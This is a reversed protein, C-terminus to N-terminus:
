KPVREDTLDQCVTSLAARNRGSTDVNHFGFVSLILSNEQLVGINNVTMKNNLDIVLDIFVAVQYKKANGTMRRPSSTIPSTNTKRTM